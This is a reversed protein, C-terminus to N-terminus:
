LIRNGRRRGSLGCCFNADERKGSFVGQCRDQIKEFSGRGPMTMYIRAGGKKTLQRGSKKRSQQDPLGIFYNTGGWAVGPQEVKRARHLHEKESKHLQYRWQRYWKHESPLM